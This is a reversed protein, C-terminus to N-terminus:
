CCVPSSTYLIRADNHSPRDTGSEHGGEATSERERPRVTDLLREIKSGLAENEEESSKVDAGKARNRKSGHIMPRATCFMLPHAHVSPSPMFRARVIPDPFTPLTIASAPVIGPWTHM